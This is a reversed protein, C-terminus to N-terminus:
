GQRSVAQGLTMNPEVSCIANINPRGLPTDAEPAHLQGALRSVAADQDQPSANLFERCSSNASLGSGGCAALVPAAITLCLAFARRASKPNM